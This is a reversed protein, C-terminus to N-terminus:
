VDELEKNNTEEVAFLIFSIGTLMLIIIIVNYWVGSVFEYISPAFMTPIKSLLYLISYYKVRAKNSFSELTITHQPLQLVVSCMLIFIFVILNYIGFILKLLRLIIIITAILIYTYKRGFLKTNMLFGAFVFFIVTGLSGIIIGIGYNKDNTFEKMEVMVFSWCLVGVSLLMLINFLFMKTPYTEKGLSAVSLSNPMSIRSTRPNLIDNLDSIENSNGIKNFSRIFEANDTAGDVDGKIMLYRPNTVLIFSATLTFLLGVSGSVIYTFRWDLKTQLMLVCYLPTLVSSLFQINLFHSRYQTCTIETIISNRLLLIPAQCIGQILNFLLLVYYNKIVLVITILSYTFGFIKLLFEKERDKFIFLILTGLFEGAYFFSTVFAIATKDCWIEFDIIWNINSKNYNITFDENKCIYDNLKEEVLQGEKYYNVIPNTLNISLNNITMDIFLGIIVLILSIVIQYRHHCGILELISETNKFVKGEM